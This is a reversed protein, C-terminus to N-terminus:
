LGTETKIRMWNLVGPKLIGRRKCSDGRMGGFILPTPLKAEKSGLVHTKPWVVLQGVADSPLAGYSEESMVASLLRSTVAFLASVTVNCFPKM